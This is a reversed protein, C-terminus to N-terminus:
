GDQHVGWRYLTTRPLGTYASVSAVPVGAAVAQRLTERYQDRQAELAAEAADLAHKEALIRARWDNPVPQRVPPEPNGDMAPLVRVEMTDKM